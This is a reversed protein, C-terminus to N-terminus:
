LQGNLWNDLKVADQFNRTIRDVKECILHVTKPHNVLYELMEKFKKREQRGSASEPVIFEKTVQLNNKNALQAQLRKLTKLREAPDVVVEQEGFILLGKSLLLHM